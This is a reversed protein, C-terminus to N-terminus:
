LRKIVGVLWNKSVPKIIPPAYKTLDISCNNYADTLSLFLIIADRREAELEVIKKKKTRKKPFYWGLVYRNFDNSTIGKVEVHACQGQNDKIILDTPSQTKKIDWQRSWPSVIFEWQFWGEVGVANESAYKHLLQPVCYRSILSYHAAELIAKELNAYLSQSM